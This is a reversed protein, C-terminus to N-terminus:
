EQKGKKERAKVERQHKDAMYTDYPILGCKNIYYLVGSGDNFNSSIPCNIVQEREIGDDNTWVHVMKAYQTGDTTIVPASIEVGDAGKSIAPQFSFGKSM